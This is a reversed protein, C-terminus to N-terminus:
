HDMLEQQNWCMVIGDIQSIRNVTDTKESCCERVTGAEQRKGDDMSSHPNRFCLSSSLFKRISRIAKLGFDKCHSGLNKMVRPLKSIEFSM